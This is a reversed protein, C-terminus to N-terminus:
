KENGSLKAWRRKAVSAAPSVPYLAQVQEMIGMGEERQGLNVLCLGMKLMADPVKNGIPHEELIRQFLHLSRLFDRRHYRCEAWWYLANDALEHDSYQKIFEKFAKEAADLDGKRFLAFSDEYMLTAADKAEQAAVPQPPAVVPEPAPTPEQTIPPLPAIPEAVPAPAPAPEFGSDSESVQSTIDAASSTAAEVAHPSAKPVKTVNIVRGSEDITQYNFAETNITNQPPTYTEFQNPSAHPSVTVVPLGPDQAYAQQPVGPAAMHQAYYNQPAQQQLQKQNMELVVRDELLAYQGQLEEIQADVSSMNRRVERVERRVEEFQRDVIHDRQNACGGLLATILFGILPISRSRFLLM